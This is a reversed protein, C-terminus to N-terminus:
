SARAQRDPNVAEEVLARLRRLDVPKELCDVLGPGLAIRDAAPVRRGTLVIIAASPARVRLGSVLEAGAVKPMTLDTIVVAPHSTLARALAEEGDAAVEVEYGWSSLLTKLGQRSAEDDDAVLIRRSM